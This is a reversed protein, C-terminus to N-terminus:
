HSANGIFIKPLFQQDASVFHIESCGHKYALPISRQYAIAQYFGKSFANAAVDEIEGSMGIVYPVYEVLKAALEISDCMNLVVCQLSESHLSLLHVFADALVIESEGSTKEFIIGGSSFGHGSIHIINPRFQFLAKTLSDINAALIFEIQIREQLGEDKLTNKILEIEQRVQLPVFDIPAAAAILLKLPTAYKDVLVRFDLLNTRGKTVVDVINPYKAMLEVASVFQQTLVLCPTTIRADVIDRLLLEGDYHPGAGLLLDLIILDFETDLQGRADDYNEADVIQYKPAKLVSRVTKRWEPENEVHLIRM